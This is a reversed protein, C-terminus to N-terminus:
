AQVSSTDRVHGTRIVDAFARASSKPTRTQTPYDVHVIGFRQAYGHAWEFNDLLSWVFYGRVDAGQARAEQVARVHALLYATREPDHVTGDAAVVDDYAAGNETIVVPVGAPGTHEAQLHVLLRRLGDPQVEWEMTTRPLDRRVVHGQSGLMPNGTPRPPAPPRPLVRDPAPEAASVLAGHYYNVGLVDIPASIAALDGDAVHPVGAASAWADLVEPPYGGHLVPHLFADNVLAQHLAAAQVDAPDQPDAPDALTLNLTLGVMADPDLERLARTAAAHSLLLHHAADVAAQPDQRGPAHEGAAYGLFASCWPENLTLWHRVRDGLAAHVARTYAEFEAVVGRDAWGGRDELWQPMDWHYLTIWPEIGRALLGDVLDSYFALGEANVVGPAPVVRAWSVSFRYAALGLDAMLAVDQRWRHYHDCAVDGTDGDRVAGPVRCFTDWISDTRGGERAAGEIQFAATAAGWVFDAPLGAGTASRPPETAPTM